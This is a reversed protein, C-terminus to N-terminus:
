EDYQTIIQQLFDIMITKREIQRDSLSVQQATLVQSPNYGQKIMEVASFLDCKYETKYEYHGIEHFLIFHLYPLPDSLLTRDIIILGKKKDVSCKNPNESVIVRLPTKPAKLNREPEPLEPLEYIVKPARLLNNETEYKGKPLNFYVKEGAENSKYYFPKTRPETSFIEIEEDSCVFGKINDLQLRM